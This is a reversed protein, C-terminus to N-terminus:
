DLRFSEVPEYRAGGRGLHSEYLVLEDATWQFPIPRYSALEVRVDLEPRIRSLTLHPAFPRDEPALGVVQSSQESLANLEAVRERGRDLALWMVAARAARPFAGLDGLVVEFAPGLDSQDLDALLRERTVHAVNGLFRVTIHWNEPPVPRGPLRHDQLHQALMERVEEEVPVGLFLRSLQEVV